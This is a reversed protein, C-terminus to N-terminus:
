CKSVGETRYLRAMAYFGTKRKQFSVLCYAEGALKLTNRVSNDCHLIYDCNKHKIFRRKYDEELITLADLYATIVDEHKSSFTDRFAM